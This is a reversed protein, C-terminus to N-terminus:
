LESSPTRRLLQALVLDAQEEDTDLLRYRSVRYPADWCNSVRGSQPSMKLEHGDKKISRPMRRLPGLVAQMAAHFTTEIM